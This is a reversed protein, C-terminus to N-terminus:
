VSTFFDNMPDLVFDIWGNRHKDKEEDDPFGSHTLKVETGAAHKHLKFVVMSSGAKAPWEIPKWTYALLQGPEFDVVKGKVWGDFLEFQGNKKLEVLASGGGWKKITDPETLAKFVREPSTYLVYTIEFAFAGTM